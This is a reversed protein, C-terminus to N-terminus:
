NILYDKMDRGDFVQHMQETAKQNALQTRKITQTHCQKQIEVAMRKQEFVPLMPVGEEGILKEIELGV